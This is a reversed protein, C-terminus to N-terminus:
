LSDTPSVEAGLPATNLKIFYDQMFDDGKSMSGENIGMYMVGDIISLNEGEDNIDVKYAGINKGNWDYVGVMNYGSQRFVVRLVYIYSSDCLIGQRLVTKEGSISIDKDVKDVSYLTKVLKFNSDYLRGNSVYQDTADNYCINSASEHDSLTKTSTIAFTTPDLLKVKDIIGNSGKESKDWASVVLLNLNKNYTMDNAHGLEDRTFAPSEGIKEGATTYKVIKMTKNGPNVCVFFLYTGDTTGGQMTGCDTIMAVKEYSITMVGCGAYKYATPALSSGIECLVGWTAPDITGSVAINKLQQFSVLTSKTSSTFSGNASLTKLSATTAISSATSSKKDQAIAANIIQQAYKVCASKNGVKFTRSVCTAADTKTDQWITYGAFLGAALLVISAGVILKKQFSSLSFKKKSAVTKSKSM